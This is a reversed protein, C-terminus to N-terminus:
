IPQSIKNFIKLKGELGRGTMILSREWFEIIVYVDCFSSMNFKDKIRLLDDFTISAGFKM